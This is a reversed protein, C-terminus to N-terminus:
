VGAASSPSAFRVGEAHIIIGATKQGRAFNKNWTTNEAHTV